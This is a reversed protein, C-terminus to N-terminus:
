ETGRVRHKERKRVGQLVRSPLRTAFTKLARRPQVQSRPQSRPGFFTIIFLALELYFPNRRSFLRHANRVLGM